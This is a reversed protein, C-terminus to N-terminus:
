NLSPGLLGYANGIRFNAYSRLSIRIRGGLAEIPVLYLDMEGNVMNNYDKVRFTESLERWSSAKASAEILQRDTRRRAGIFHSTDLGLQAARKQLSKRVRHSIPDLELQRQVGRWCRQTEIADRLQDDTWTRDKAASENFM